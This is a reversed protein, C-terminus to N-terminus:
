ATEAYGFFAARERQKQYRDKKPAEGDQSGIPTWKGDAAWPRAIRRSDEPLGKGNSHLYAQM